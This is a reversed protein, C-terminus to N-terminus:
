EREGMEGGAKRDGESGVFSGHRPRKEGAEGTVALQLERATRKARLGHGLELRTGVRGAVRGMAAARDLGTLAMLKATEGASIRAGLSRAVERLVRRRLAPAMARLREIEVACSREGTVTSVARGGGRVPRGPLLVQPLVRAVEMRWFAEEDRAIEALRALAADIGPNFGRLVPMLEHRVRNRTLRLDKNTADECWTQGRERLFAEVQARRVGLM